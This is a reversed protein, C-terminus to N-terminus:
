DHLVQQILKSLETARYPKAIVGSFGYNEYDSMVSNNSYGSSVIVKARPDLELLREVAERGGMGGPIILDMVVADFPAGSQQAEAYKDVAQQGELAFEAKYGLTELMTGLINLMLNDDDMVLIKGRGYKLGSYEVQNSVPSFSAPLFITFCAGAGPTSEVTIHGEHKKLISYASTLGLGRGTKRTTVYPDFVKCLDEQPIGEGQDKITIKVYNGNKLPMADDETVVANECTVSITGGNQMAQDANILINTVVQGIQGEEAEINWLNDPVTLACTSKTVNLTSHSYSKILNAVSITKKVPAGGKAVTFVQQTLDKAKLVSEEARTLRECAKDTPSLLAKAFSINGLITMLHNNFDHAIAGSLFGLSEIKNSKVLEEEVWKRHTIDERIGLIGIIAGDADRLPVKSTSFWTQKGDPTTQLQENHLKPKGSAMIEFDDRRYNDAREKWSMSYDDLGILEEPLVFGADQAFLHNCGLYTSTLDKWFLRVPLADLVWKSLNKADNSQPESMNRAEEVRKRKTIDSIVLRCEKKGGSNRAGTASLHAWFVTGDRKKMRLECVQLESNRHNDELHFDIFGQDEVLIFQSLPQKVLLERPVGLMTAATLNAQLIVGKGSITCYGVPAHDYLDFYRARENKLDKQVRRLEEIQMELETQHQCLKHFYLRSEESAVDDLTEPARNKEKMVTKEDLRYIPATQQTRRNTKIM